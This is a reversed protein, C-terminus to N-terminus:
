PRHAASVVGSGELDRSAALMSKGIIREAIIFLPIGIFFQTYAAFDYFFNMAVKAEEPADAPITHFCAMVAMPCWTIFILLAMRGILHLPRRPGLGLKAFARNVLDGEFLSFQTVAGEGDEDEEREEQQKGMTKGIM